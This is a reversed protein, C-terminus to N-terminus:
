VAANAVEILAKNLDGDNVIAKLAVETGHRNLDKAYEHQLIGCALIKVLAELREIRQRDTLEGSM